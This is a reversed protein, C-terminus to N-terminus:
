RGRLLANVDASMIVGRPAGGQELVLYLPTPKALMASILAEGHLSAELVGIEGVSGAVASVPTAARQQVPVAQAAAPQIRYARGLVGPRPATRELVLVADLDADSGLDALSQHAPVIHMPRALTAADLTGIRHQLKAAELARTAGQWLMGAILLAWLITLLLFTDAGQNRMIWWLPVLVVVVAIGRGFWATVRTGLLPRRLVGGLLAELARGGDMPLGPLLNFIALAVNLRSCFYWFVAGASGPEALSAIASTGAALLLNAIPGSLSIVVSAPASMSESRYQTHGGWLTLAIHDVTAGFGHASLAHAAEHILVSVIMFVAIGLALLVGTSSVSGGDGAFSPYLILALVLVTVLTGPSVRIAPLPGLRLTPSTM